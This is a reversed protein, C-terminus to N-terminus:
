PSFDAVFVVYETVGLWGGPMIKKTKSSIRILVEPSIKMLGVFFFFVLYGLRYVGVSIEIGTRESDSVWIHRGRPKRKM